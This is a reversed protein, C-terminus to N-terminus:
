KIYLINTIKQVYEYMKAMEAHTLSPEDGCWSFVCYGIPSDHGYLQYIVIYTTSDTLLNQSLRSDIGKLESISGHFINNKIMYQPFTYRSLVMRAYSEDSHLIGNRVREYTMEGFIFPVGGISNTGNHLEIVSARDANVEYMAELLYENVKPSMGLRNDMESLHQTKDIQEREDLTANITKEIQSNFLNVCTCCFIVFLIAIFVYGLTKVIGQKEVIKIVTDAIASICKKVIPM